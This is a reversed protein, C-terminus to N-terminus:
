NSVFLEGKIINISYEYFKKRLKGWSAGLSTRDGQLPVWASRTEQGKWGGWYIQRYVLAGWSHDQNLLIIEGWFIDYQSHLHLPRPPTIKNFSIIKYHLLYLIFHLATLLPYLIIDTIGLLCCICKAWDLTNAYIANSTFIMVRSLTWVVQYCFPYEMFINAKEKFCSQKQFHIVNLM